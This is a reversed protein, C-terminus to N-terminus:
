LQHLRQRDRQKRTREVCQDLWVETPVILSENQNCGQGGTDQDSRDDEFTALHEPGIAVLALRGFNRDVWDPRRM